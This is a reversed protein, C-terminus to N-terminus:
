LCMYDKLELNFQFFLYKKIHLLFIMYKNNRICDLQQTKKENM